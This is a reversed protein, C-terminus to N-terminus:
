FRWGIEALKNARVFISCKRNKCELYRNDDRIYPTSTFYNWNETRFDGSEFKRRVEKWKEENGFISFLGGVDGVATVNLKGLDVGNIILHGDAWVSSGPSEHLNRFELRVDNKGSQRFNGRHKDRFSAIKVWRTRQEEREAEEKERKREVVSAHVRDGWLALKEQLVHRLEDSNTVALPLGKHRCIKRQTHEVGAIEVTDMLVDISRLYQNGYGSAFNAYAGCHSHGSNGGSFALRSSRFYLYGRSRGCSLDISRRDVNIFESKRNILTLVGWAGGSFGHRILAGQDLSEKIDNSKHNFLLFAYDQSSSFSFSIGHANGRGYIDDIISYHNDGPSGTRGDLNTWYDFNLRIGDPYWRKSKIGVMAGGIYEFYPPEKKNQFVHKFRYRNRNIEGWGGESVDISSLEDHCVSSTESSQAPSGTTALLLLALMIRKINTSWKFPIGSLVPKSKMASEMKGGLQFPLGARLIGKFGVARLGVGAEHRM